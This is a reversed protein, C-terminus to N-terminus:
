FLFPRRPDHHGLGATFAAGVLLSPGLYAAVSADAIDRCTVQLFFAALPGSGLTKIREARNARHNGIFNVWPGAGQHLGAHITFDPLLAARSIENKGEVDYDAM